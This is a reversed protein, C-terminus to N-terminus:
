GIEEDDDLYGRVDEHHMADDDPGDTLDIVRRNHDMKDDGCDDLNEQLREGSRSKPKGPPRMNQTRGGDLHLMRELAPAHSSAGKMREAVTPVVRGQRIDEERQETASLAERARKRPPGVACKTM